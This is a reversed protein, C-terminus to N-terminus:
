GEGRRYAAIVQEWYSTETGNACLYDDREKANEMVTDEPILVRINFWGPLLERNFAVGDRIHDDMSNKTDYMVPVGPGIQPKTLETVIDKTIGDTNDVWLKTGKKIAARIEAETWKQEETNESM